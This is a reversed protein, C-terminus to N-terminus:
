LFGREIFNDFYIDEWVSLRGQIILAIAQEPKRELALNAVATALAANPFIDKGTHDQVDHTYTDVDAIIEAAVANRAAANNFFEEVVPDTEKTFWSSGFGPVIRVHNQKLFQPNNRWATFYRQAQSAPAHRSDLTLLAAAVADNYPKGLQAMAKIIASSANDRLACQTHLIIIAEEIM